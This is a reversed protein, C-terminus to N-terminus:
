QKPKLEGESDLDPDRGILDYNMPTDAVLDEERIRLHKGYCQRRGSGSHAGDGEEFHKRRRTSGISKM